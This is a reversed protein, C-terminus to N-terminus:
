VLYYGCGHKNVVWDKELGLDERMRYILANIEWSFVLPVGNEKAREDWVAKKIEDDSVIKGRNRYLVEFLLYEKPSLKRKVGDLWVERKDTDLRLGTDESVVPINSSDAPGQITEEDSPSISFCLIVQDDQCLYIYDGSQLPYPHDKEVKNQNIKTGNKSHDVLYYGDDQFRIEAHRRSISPTQFCLDPRQELGDRGIWFLARPLLVPQYQTNSDGKLVHLYANTEPPAMIVDEM